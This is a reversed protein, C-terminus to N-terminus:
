GPRKTAASPRSLSSIDLGTFIDAEVGALTIRPEDLIMPEANARAAAFGPDDV